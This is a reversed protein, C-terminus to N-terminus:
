LLSKKKKKGSIEIGQGQTNLSKSTFSMKHTDHSPPISSLNKHTPLQYIGQLVSGNWWSNDYQTVCKNLLM